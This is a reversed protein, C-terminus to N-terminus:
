SENFIRKLERKAETLAMIPDENEYHGDFIMHGTIGCRIVSNYSGISNKVARLKFIAGCNTDLSLNFKNAKNLRKQYENEFFEKAKHCSFVLIQKVNPDEEWNHVESYVLAM